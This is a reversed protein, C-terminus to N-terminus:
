PLPRVWDGCFPRAEVEPELPFTQSSAAALREPDSLDFLEASVPDLPKYSAIAIGERRTGIAALYAQVSRRARSWHPVSSSILWVRPMGRYRDVDRLFVRRDDRSCGGVEYDGRALGYEPAYHEVGECANSFVLIADGPQRHDRLFALPTKFDEVWYPPPPQLLAYAPGLFLVAMCAAGAAPHVRSVKRRAWEAAEATALLLSPVLFLILRARFPYQQAVAALVTVALPGLLVFAGFRNRRWLAALGVLTLAVYVAAWPYNLVMPQGFLEVVRDWLWLADAPKRLPWPFFGGRERWFFDMFARTAPTMHGLAVLLSAASALAWIPVAVLVARRIGPDRGRLWELVLAGSLGVLVLVTSQSFWVFMAGALGAGVCRGVTSGARRLGLAILAMAVAATVDLGYQKIEASYRIFPTGIAFAAVAFPVAYGELVQEALSLFLVLAVLGALLPLFRFALDSTGLVRSIGREAVMFGVPAVQNYDLPELLLRKASRHVLNRVISFEDFWLSKNSAYQFIRLAGGLAVLAWLFPRRLLLPIGPVAPDAPKM